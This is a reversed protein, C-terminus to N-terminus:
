AAKRCGSHHFSSPAATTSTTHTMKSRRWVPVGTGEPLPHHRCWSLGNESRYGNSSVPRTGLPGHTCSGGGAGGRSPPGANQHQEAPHRGFVSSDGAKPAARKPRISRLLRPDIPKPITPSSRTLGTTKDCGEGVGTHARTVGQCTSSVPAGRPEGGVVRHLATGRDGVTPRSPRRVLTIARGLDSRDSAAAGRHDEGSGARPIGARSSAIRRRPRVPLASRRPTIGKGGDGLRILQPMCAIMNAGRLPELLPARPPGLITHARISPSRRQHAVHRADELGDLPAHGPGRGPGQRRDVVRQAPRGRPPRGAFLGALREPGRRDM